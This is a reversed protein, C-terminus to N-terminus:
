AWRSVCETLSAVHAFPRSATPFSLQLESVDYVAGTVNKELLSLSEQSQRFKHLWCNESSRNFSFSLSRSLSLSLRHSSPIPSLPPHTYQLLLVSVCTYLCLSLKSRIQQCVTALETQRETTRRCLRWIAGSHHVLRLVCLQNKSRNKNVEWGLLPTIGPACIFATRMDRSLSAGVSSFSRNFADRNSRLLPLSVDLAKQVAPILLRKHLHISANFTSHVKKKM